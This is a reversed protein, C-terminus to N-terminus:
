RRDPQNSILIINRARDIRHVQLGQAMLAEPYGRECLVWVRGPGRWVAALRDNSVLWANAPLTEGSTDYTVEPLATPPAVTEAFHGMGRERAKGVLHMRRGFALDLDYDHMVEQQLCVFDESGGSAHIRHMLRSGDLDAVVRDIRPLACAATCFVGLALASLAPRLRGQWGLVGALVVGICISALAAVLWPFFQPDLLEWPVPDIVTALPVGIVFILTQLALLWSWWPRRRGTGSAAWRWLVDCALLLLLPTLPLLYTGLKSTSATLFLLPFIVGCALFRRLDPGAVPSRVGQWCGVVLAPLAVVSYPALYVPLLTLYYWWSHSHNVKDTLFAELNYRIYFFELFRPDRQWVAVSWPLNLALLIGTGRVPHMDWLTKAVALLGGRWGGGVLAYGAIASGALAVAVPGKTLLGLGLCLWFGWIWQNRRGADEWRWWTYFCGALTAALLTDTILVSGLGLVLVSGCFLLAAPLAFAPGRLRLALGWTAWASLLTAVASPIAIAYNNFGFWLQSLGGLWYTLPPKEMYPVYGLHPIVWDGSQAMERAAQAYRTTSSLAPHGGTLFYGLAVVVTLLVLDRSPSPVRLWAGIGHM